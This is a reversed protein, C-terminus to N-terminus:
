RAHGRSTSHLVEALPPRKGKPLQGHLPQLSIICGAKAAVRDLPGTLHQFQQRSPFCVVTSAEEKGLEIRLTDNEDMDVNKFTRGLMSLSPEVLDFTPKQGGLWTTDLKLVRGEVNFDMDAPEDMTIPHNQERELSPEHGQQLPPQATAKEQLQQAREKLLIRTKPMAKEVVPRDVEAAQQASERPKPVIRVPVRPVPNYVVKPVAKVVQPPSKFQLPGRGQQTRRPLPPPPPMAAADSVNRGAVTHRPVPPPPLAAAGQQSCGIGIASAVNAKATARQELTVKAQVVRPEVPLVPEVHARVADAHVAGVKATEAMDVANVQVARLVDTVVQGVPVLVSNEQVAGMKVLVPSDALAKATHDFTVRQAGVDPQEENPQSSSSAGQRTITRRTTSPPAKALLDEDESSTVPTIWSGYFVCGPYDRALLPKMQWYSQFGVGREDAHLWAEQHYEKCMLDILCARVDDALVQAKKAQVWDRHALAMVGAVVRLGDEELREKARIMMHVHGFHVPNFSGHAVIVVPTTRRATELTRKTKADHQEFMEATYGSFPYPRKASTAKKGGGEVPISALSSPLMGGPPGCGGRLKSKAALVAKRIRMVLLDALPFDLEANTILFPQPTRLEAERMHQRIMEDLLGPNCVMGQPLHEAQLDLSDFASTKVLYNIGFPYQVVDLPEQRQPGLTGAPRAPIPHSHIPTPAAVELGEWHLGKRITRRLRMIFLWPLPLDLEEDALPQPAPEPVCVGRYITEMEELDQANEIVHLPGAGESGRGLQTRDLSPLQPHIMALIARRLKRLQFVRAARDVNDDEEVDPLPALGDVHLGDSDVQQERERYHRETLAVLDHGNCWIHSSTGQEPMGVIRFQRIVMPNTGAIPRVGGPICHLGERAPQQQKRLLGARTRHKAPAVFFHYNQWAVMYRPAQSTSSTM